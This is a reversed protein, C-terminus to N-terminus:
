RLWSINRKSESRSHVPWEYVKCKRDKQSPMTWPTSWRASGAVTSAIPVFCCCPSFPPWIVGKPCRLERPSFSKGDFAQLPLATLASEAGARDDLGPHRAHRRRSHIRAPPFARLWGDGHFRRRQRRRLVFPRRRGCSRGQCHTERQGRGRPAHPAREYQ